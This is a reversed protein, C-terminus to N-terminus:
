RKIQKIFKETINHLIIREDSILGCYYTMLCTVILSVLGSLLFGGGSSLFRSVLFCATVNVIVTPLMGLFVNRMYQSISYKVSIYMFVLRGITCITEFIFFVIMADIPQRGQKLIHYIVPLTLIKITNICINYTKVNGIALSANSLNLTILDMQNSLIIAVCFMATHEPVEELWLGLVTPMYIVVPIAVISTLLFSFKCSIESLRLMRLRNGAGESKIIQPSIATTLANSLFNIQGSVQGSIGFAANITTGFFRNLLIATGQTRGIVCATGYNNWSMFSCMEKAFKKDFSRFSFSCCEEYKRKCYVYYCCFNLGIILFSMLSYWELKYDSIFILSLAVPIKLVADVTQIISSYLINEHTILMAFYPISLMNVFLSGVTLWYVWRAAELCGAPINVLHILIVDSLLILGVCLSMSVLLQICLSNNFIVVLMHQDGKGQYYSFYRQTTRSLDNQIFALLTVIGGILSYIGYNEVGLNALVIRSTYLTIVVTIVTRVYQVFTNVAVRTSPHTSIM